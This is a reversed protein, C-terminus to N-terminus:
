CRSTSMVFSSAGEASRLFSRVFRQMPVSTRQRWLNSDRLCRPGSASALLAVRLASAVGRQAVRHRSPSSRRRWVHQRRHPAVSPIDITPRPPPPNPTRPDLPSSRPDLNLNRLPKQRSSQVLSPSHTPALLSTRRDAKTGPPRRPCSTPPDIPPRPACIPAQFCLVLSSSVHNLAPHSFFSSLVDLRYQDCVLTRACSVGRDIRLFFFTPSLSSKAGAQGM